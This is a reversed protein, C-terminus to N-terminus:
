RGGTGSDLPVSLADALEFLHGLRGEVGPHRGATDVLFARWGAARAGLYDADLSDGVFVAQQAGVGLRELAHAFIRPHPKRWGLEASTVVEAFRARVGLRSLNGLVLPPYFTNSLVSLRFRQGLAALFADLGDLAVTSGNWEDVYRASFEAVLDDPADGMGAGELFARSIAHLHPERGTRRAEVEFRAFADALGARFPEFGLTLGREVLFAHARTETPGVCKDPDYQVLTGFFDFVVDTVM